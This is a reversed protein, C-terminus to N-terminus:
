YLKKKGGLSFSVITLLPNWFHILGLRGVDRTLLIYIHIDKHILIVKYM